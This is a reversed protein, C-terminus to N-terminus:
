LRRLSLALMNHTIVPDARLRRMPQARRSEMAETIGSAALLRSSQVKSFCKSPLGMHCHTRSIAPCLHCTFLKPLTCCSHGRARKRVTNKNKDSAEPTCDESAVSSGVDQEFNGDAEGESSQKCCEIADGAWM